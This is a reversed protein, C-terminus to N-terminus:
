DRIWVQPYNTGASFGFFNNGKWTENNKLIQRLLYQERNLWERGSEYFTPLCSKKFAASVLLLLRLNLFCSRWKKDQGWFEGEKVLDWEIKFIGAALNFYVPISFTVSNGPRVSQPLVFRPNDYAILKGSSDYAHYSIFFNKVQSLTYASGNRLSFQLTIKEGQVATVLGPTCTIEVVGGYLSLFATLLWCFLIARQQKWLIKM